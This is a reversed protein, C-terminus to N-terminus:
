NAAMRLAIIVGGGGGGVSACVLSCYYPSAQRKSSRETMDARRKSANMTLKSRRMVAPHDGARTWGVHWFNNGDHM